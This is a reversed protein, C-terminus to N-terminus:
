WVFQNILGPIESLKSIQICFTATTNQDEKPGNGHPDYYIQDMGFERAGLIDAEWNDGIMLSEKKRANCSKLAHEFIQRHPKPRGIEESIFIRSIFPILESNRIKKYQVEKFGNTIIHIQYNRKKLETLAEVAGPLLNKKTPMIGLYTENVQEAKGDIQIGFHALSEEFRQKVLQAKPIEQKRYKEWLGKNIGSYVEFYEDFSPLRDMLQLQRFADKMALYSNTEFDWLTHDLDFFLHRYRKSKLNM